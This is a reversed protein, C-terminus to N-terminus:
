RMWGMTGLTAHKFQGARLAHGDVFVGLLAAGSQRTLGSGAKALAFVVCASIRCDSADGETLKEPPPRAV